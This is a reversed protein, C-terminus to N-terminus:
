VLKKIKAVLGPSTDGRQGVQKMKYKEAKKYFISGDYMARIDEKRM